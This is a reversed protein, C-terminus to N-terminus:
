IPVLVRVCRRGADRLIVWRMESSGMGRPKSVWPMHVTMVVIQWVVVRRGFDGLEGATLLRMAVGVVVPIGQGCLLWGHSVGVVRRGIGSACGAEVPLTRRDSM